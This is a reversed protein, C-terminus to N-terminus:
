APRANAHLRRAGFVAGLGSLLLWVAAPLPVVAATTLFDNYTGSTPGSDSMLWGRAVWAFDGYTSTSLRDSDAAFVFIVDAGFQSVFASEDNAKGTFDFVSGISGASTTTTSKAVFGEYTVSNVTDVIDYHHLENLTYDLQYSAGPDNNDYVIGSIYATGFGDVFDTDWTLTVYGGLGGLDTSVSFTNDPDLHDAHIGYAPGDNPARYHLADPHNGLVYTVIDAHAVSSFTAAAVVATFVIRSARSRFM